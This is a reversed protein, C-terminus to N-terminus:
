INSVMPLLEAQLLKFTSLTVSFCSRTWLYMTSLNLHILKVSTTGLPNLFWNNVISPLCIEFSGSLESHTNHVAKMSWHIGKLHVGSKYELSISLHLPSCSSTKHAWTSNTSISVKCLCQGNPEECHCQGQSNCSTPETGEVSCECDTCDPFNYSGYMCSNCQLGTYDSRCICQGTLPDCNNDLSGEPDCSCPQLHYTFMATFSLYLYLATCLCKLATKTFWKLNIWTTFLYTVVLCCM